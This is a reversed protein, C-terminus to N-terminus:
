GSHWGETVGALLADRAASLMCSGFSVVIIPVVKGRGLYSHRTQPFTHPLMGQPLHSPHMILAGSLKVRRPALVLLAAEALMHMNKKPTDTWTPTSAVDVLANQKSKECGEVKQVPACSKTDKESTFAEEKNRGAAEHLTPPVTFPYCARPIDLNQEQHSVQLADM